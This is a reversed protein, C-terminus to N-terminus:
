LLDEIELKLLTSLRTRSIRGSLWDITAKKTSEDCYRIIGVADRRVSVPTVFDKSVLTKGDYDKGRTSM